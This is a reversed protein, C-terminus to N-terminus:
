RENSICVNYSNHELRQFSNRIGKSLNNRWFVAALKTQNQNQKKSM